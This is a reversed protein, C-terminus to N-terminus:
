PASEASTITKEALFVKGGQNTGSINYVRNQDAQVLKLIM